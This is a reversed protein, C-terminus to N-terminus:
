KPEIKAVNFYGLSMNALFTVVSLKFAKPVDGVFNRKSVKEFDLAFNKRMKEISLATLTCYVANFTSKAKFNVKRCSFSFGHHHHFNKKVELANERM